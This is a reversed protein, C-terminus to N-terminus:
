GFTPSIEARMSSELAAARPFLVNNELHIHLHLDAELEKLGALLARYTECADGPPRYGDTLRRILWLAQGASAHEDEMVAIPNGVSGCHFEAAARGDQAAQELEIIFPFLVREEKMMHTLLEGQLGGFVERVSLLEEHRASHAAVVRAMMSDLQPLHVRLYNHHRGLIREIL